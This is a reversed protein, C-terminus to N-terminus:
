TFDALVSRKLTRLVCVLFLHVRSAVSHSDVLRASGHVREATVTCVSLLDGYVRQATMMCVSLLDGYVREATM